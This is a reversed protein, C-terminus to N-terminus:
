RSCSHTDDAQAFSNRERIEEDCMDDYSRRYALYAGYEIAWARTRRKAMTKNFKISFCLYVYNDRMYRKWKLSILWKSPLSIVFIPKKSQTANDGDSSCDSLVLAQTKCRTRSCTTSISFRWFLRIEWKKKRRRTHTHTFHQTRSAM